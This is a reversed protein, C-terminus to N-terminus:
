GNPVLGELILNMESQKSEDEKVEDVADGIISLLKRKNGMYTIIQSKLFEDLESNM